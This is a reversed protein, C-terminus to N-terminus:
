IDPIQTYKIERCDHNNYNHSKTKRRSHFPILCGIGAGGTDYSGVAESPNKICDASEKIFPM